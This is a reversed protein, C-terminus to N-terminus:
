SLGGPPIPIAAEGRGALLKTLYRHHILVRGGDGLAPGRSQQLEFWPGGPRSVILGVVALAHGGADEGTPTIIGQSDPDEMGTMWPIGIVVPGVQLVAQAISKTGFAWLYGPWLGAEQGAKMGALVSTGAYAEGSVHDLEQARAYLALADAKSLLAPGDVSPPKIGIGLSKAIVNAAAATAMGVCGSADHVSLPPTTGQDFVPGIQWRRDQLPVATRLRAAVDFNRSRDDHRSVWDRVVRPPEPTETSYVVEDPEDAAPLPDESLDMVPAERSTPPPLAAAERSADAARRIGADIRDRRPPPPPKPAAYLLTADAPGELRVQREWQATLAELRAVQLKSLPPAPEPDVWGNVGDEIPRGLSDTPYPGAAEIRELVEAPTEPAPPKPRHVAPPQRRPHQRRRIV